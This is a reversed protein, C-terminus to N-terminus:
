YSIGSAQAEFSTFPGQGEENKRIIYVWKKATPKKIFYKKTKNVNIVERFM